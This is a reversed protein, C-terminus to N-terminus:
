NLPQNTPLITSSELQCLKGYSNVIGEVQLLIQPCTPLLCMLNLLIHSKDM